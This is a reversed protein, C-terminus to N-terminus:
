ARFRFTAHGTQQGIKANDTFVKTHFQELLVTWWLKGRAGSVGSREALLLAVGVFMLLVAFSCPNLSDLLAAGAVVPLTLDAADM